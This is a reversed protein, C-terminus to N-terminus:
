QLIGLRHQEGRGYPNRDSEPTPEQAFVVTAGALGVLLLATLAGSTLILLRKKNM